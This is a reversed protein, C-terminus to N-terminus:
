LDLIQKIVAGNQANLLHTVEGGISSCQGNESDWRTLNDWAKSKALDLAQKASKAFGFGCASDGANPTIIFHTAKFLKMTKIKLNYSYDSLKKLRTLDKKLIFEL